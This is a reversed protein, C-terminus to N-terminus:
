GNRYIGGTSQIGYYGMTDWLTAFFLTESVCTELHHVKASYYTSYHVYMNHQVQSSARYLSAM